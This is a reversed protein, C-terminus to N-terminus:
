YREFLTAAVLVHDVIVATQTVLALPVPVAAFQVFALWANISPVAAEVSNIPAVTGVHDDMMKELEADVRSLDDDAVV